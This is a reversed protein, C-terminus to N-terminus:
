KMEEKEDYLYEVGLEELEADTLGLQETFTWYESEDLESLSDAIWVLCGVLLQKMREETM